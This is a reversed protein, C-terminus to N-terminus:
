VPDSLHPSIGAHHHAIGAGLQSRIRDQFPLFVAVSGLKVDRRAFWRLAPKDFAEIAARSVFAQIRMQKIAQEMGAVQDGRPAGIEFVM